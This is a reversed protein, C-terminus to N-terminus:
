EQKEEENLGIYNKKNTPIKEIDLSSIKNKKKAFCMYLVILGFLIILCIIIIKLIKKTSYFKVESTGVTFINLKNAICKIYAKGHLIFNQYTDIGTTELTEKEENYLLCTKMTNYLKKEFLIQPRFDEINFDDVKIENGNKDYLTIGVFTNSVGDEYEKKTRISILPSEFIITQMAYAGKIRLLYNSHLILKIGKNNINSISVESDTSLGLGGPNITVNLEISGSIKYYNTGFENFRKSVSFINKQLKQAMDKNIYGNLKSLFGKDKEEERFVDIANSISHLLLFLIDKKVDPIIEVNLYEEIKTWYFDFKEELCNIVDYFIQASGEIISEPDSSIEIIFILLSKINFELDNDILNTTIM